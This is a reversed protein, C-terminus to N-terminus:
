CVSGKKYNEFYSLTPSKRTQKCRCRVLLVKIKFNWLPHVKLIKGSEVDSSQRVKEFCAGDGRYFRSACVPSRTPAARIWRYTPAARGDRPPRLASPPRVTLVSGPGLTGPFHPQKPTVCNISFVKKDTESINGDMVCLHKWLQLLYESASPIRRSVTETVSLQLNPYVPVSVSM